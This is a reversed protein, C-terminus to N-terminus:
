EVVAAHVVVVDHIKKDTMSEDASEEM